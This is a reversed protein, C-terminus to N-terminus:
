PIIDLRNTIYHNGWALVASRSGEWFQGLNHCFNHKRM